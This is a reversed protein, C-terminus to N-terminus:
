KISAASSHKEEKPRNIPACLDTHLKESSIPCIKFACYLVVAEFIFIEM